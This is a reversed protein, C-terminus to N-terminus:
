GAVVSANYSYISFDYSQSWTELAGECHFTEVLEICDAALWSMQMFALSWINRIIRLQGRVFHSRGVSTMVDQGQQLPWVISLRFTAAKVDIV